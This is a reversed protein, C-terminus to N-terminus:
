FGQALLGRGHNQGKIFFVSGAKFGPLGLPRIIEIGEEILFSGKRRFIM